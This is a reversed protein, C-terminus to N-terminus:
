SSLRACGKYRPMAADWVMKNLPDHLEIRKDDSDM